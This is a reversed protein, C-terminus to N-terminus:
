SSGKLAKIYREFERSLVERENAIMKKDWKKGRLGKGKNSVYQRHAYPQIYTVSGPKIIVTTALAGTDRPVYKEMRRFANNALFLNAKGNDGFGYKNSIRAPSFNTLKYEIKM